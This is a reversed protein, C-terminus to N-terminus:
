RRKRRGEPVSSTGPCSKLTHNRRHEDNEITKMHMYLRKPPNNTKEQM